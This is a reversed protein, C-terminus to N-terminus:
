FGERRTGKKGTHGAIQSVRFGFRFLLCGQRLWLHGASAVAEMQQEVEVSESSAVSAMQALDGPQNGGFTGEGEVSCGRAM